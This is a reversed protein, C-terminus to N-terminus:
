GGGKAEPGMWASHDPKGEGIIERLKRVHEAEISSPTEEVNLSLHTEATLFRVCDRCVCFVGSWPQKGALAVPEPGEKRLRYAVVESPKFVYHRCVQCIVSHFEM